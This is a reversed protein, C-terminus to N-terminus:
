SVTTTSVQASWDPPPTWGGREMVMVGRVLAASTVLRASLNYAKVNSRQWRFKPDM